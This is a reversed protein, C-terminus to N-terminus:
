VYEEALRVAMSCWEEIRAPDARCTTIDKMIVEVHMGRTLDLVLRLEREAEARDFSSTAFVGPSPKYSFVFDRGVAPAAAAPDVFRSM